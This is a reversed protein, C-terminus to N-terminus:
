PNVNTNLQKTVRFRPLLESGQPTKMGHPESNGHFTRLQHFRKLRSSSVPESNGLIRTVNSYNM